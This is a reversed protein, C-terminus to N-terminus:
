NRARIKEAASAAQSGITAGGWGKIRTRDTKLRELAKADEVTGMTGLARVAVLRAIWSESDLAARLTPLADDGLERIDKEIYDELDQQKYTYRSPLAELLKTLGEVGFGDLIGEAARYRVVEATEASDERHDLFGALAQLSDAHPTKELLTFAADRLEAREEKLSSDGAIATAVSIAEADPHFALARVAWLRQQFPGKNAVRSLYAVAKPSGLKGLAHITEMRTPQQQKALAILKGAALDRAGQSGVESLMTASAVVPTSSQDILEAVIAAAPEGITTIIKQGSHEGGRRKRWDGLVWRVVETDMARRRPDEALERLSFLADKAQVQVQTTAKPNSGRMRTILRKVLGDMLQRRDKEELSKVDEALHSFLGMEALAEAAMVRIETTQSTDRLTARIKAAGKVSQKWRDIKDPTVECGTSAFLVAFATVYVLFIKTKM